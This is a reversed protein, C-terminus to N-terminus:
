EDGFIRSAFLFGALSGAGVLAWLAITNAMATSYATVWNQSSLVTLLWVSASEVAPANWIGWVAVGLGVILLPILEAWQLAKRAKEMEAQKEALMEQWRARRWMAGPDPLDPNAGGDRALSQMWQATRMVEGCVPCQSAHALLAEDWQESRVAKAVAAEKPCNAPSM